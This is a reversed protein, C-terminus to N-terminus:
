AKLQQAAGAGGRNEPRHDRRSAVMRRIADVAFAKAEIDEDEDQQAAPDDASPERLGSARYFNM